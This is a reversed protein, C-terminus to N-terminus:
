NSIKNKKLPITGCEPCRDPTARLDYGCILCTGSASRNRNLERRREWYIAPLLCFLMLSWHPIRGEWFPIFRGSGADGSGYEFGWRSFIVRDIEHAPVIFPFPKSRVVFESLNWSHAPDHVAFYDAWSVFLQGGRSGFILQERYGSAVAQVAFLDIHAVSHIWLLATGLSILLSLAVLGNFVYRRFRKM